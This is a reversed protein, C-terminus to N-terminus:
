PNLSRGRFVGEVFSEPRKVALALREEALIAVANRVFLDAHQEAIRINGQERDYLQAGLGFAGVLFRGEQIAPTDVVPLRWLRQETGIAVNQVLVYNNQTDKTLEIGEWDLPHMVLGTAEYNALLVLTVARRVLDADHKFETTSPNYAADDGDLTQIGPTQLVGLLHDGTGPGNLIEDDEVLRLGYLLENNIVGQLQPEDALVNRHAVEFHAITRVPAQALEMSLASQPKLQFNSGDREGVVSANNTFGTIRFYDILNSSTRQVPFLDRVRRTRFPRPVLPDTQVSGLQVPLATGTPLDTYIDKTGGEPRWQKGLDPGVIEWPADMTARGSAIMSKFQESETFAQGLSKPSSVPRYGAALAAKEAAARVAVSDEAPTDMFAKLEATMAEAEILGRLETSEGVLKKVEAAQETTVKVGGNDEIVFTGSIREIEEIKTKLIAKLETARDSM